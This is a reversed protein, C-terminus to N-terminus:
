LRYATFRLIAGAMIMVVVMAMVVLLAKMMVVGM